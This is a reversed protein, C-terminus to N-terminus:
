QLGEVSYIKKVSQEVEIGFCCLFFVGEKDAKKRRRIEGGGGGSVRWEVDVMTGTSTTRLGTSM